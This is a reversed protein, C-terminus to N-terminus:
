ALSHEEERPSSHCGDRSLQKWCNKGSSHGVRQHEDIAAWKNRSIEEMLQVVRYPDIGADEFQVCRRVGDRFRPADSRRSDRKGRYYGAREGM